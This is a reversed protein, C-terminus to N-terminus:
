SHMLIADAVALAKHSERVDHVRVIHAGKAAAIVSASLTGELREDPDPIGLLSGIFSKRSPGVLIAKGLTKLEELHKIITLNDDLRKGFGIGPDVIIKDPDVGAMVAIDISEKLSHIVETMVCDYNPNIQMDGPTGKIHMLILPCNAKAAVEAMRTDFRLASIDNIIHAGAEIARCAVESKYTDISIPTKIKKAIKEIVPIVRAIEEDVPLTAAGPRTSEGGVDIIHAGEEVMEFARDLAKESDFYENGDSFSDPTVNLIGM